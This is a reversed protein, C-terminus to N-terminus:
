EYHGVIKICKFMPKGYIKSSKLKNALNTARTLTLKQKEFRGNIYMQYTEYINQIKRNLHFIRHRRKPDHKSKSLEGYCNKSHISWSVTYRLQLEKKPQIIIKIDNRQSKM